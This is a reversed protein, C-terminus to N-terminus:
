RDMGRDQEQQKVREPAPLAEKEAARLAVMVEQRVGIKEATELAKKLEQKTPPATVEGDKQLLNHSNIGIRGAIDLLQAAEKTTVPKEHKEAMVQKEGARQTEQIQAMASARQLEGGPKMDMSMSQTGPPTAAGRAAPKPQSAADRPQRRLAENRSRETQQQRKKQALVDAQKQGTDKRQDQHQQQQQQSERQQHEMQQQMESSQQRAADAQRQRQQQQTQQREREASRASDMPDNIMIPNGKYIHCMAM